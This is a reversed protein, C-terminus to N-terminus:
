PLALELLRSLEVGLVIFWALIAIGVGAAAIDKIVKIKENHRTEVFDCLAEIASNFIEAALVFATVVLILLFDVWARAGFAVALVVVSAVLKYTVSWDYLVAYRLGSIVTRVKRLPHYGAEGTGLFKHRMSCEGALDAPPAPVAGVPRCARGRGSCRQSLPGAPLAALRLGAGGRRYARCNRAPGAVNGAAAALGARLRHGARCPCQPFSWDEPMPILPPFLDPRPRAALLKVLHGLGSAGVLALAVFSASREGRWRWWALLALPLLVLLSGLWTVAAFLADLWPARLAHALALGGGDWVSISLFGQM